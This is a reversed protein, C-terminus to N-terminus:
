LLVPHYASIQEFKAEQQMFEVLISVSSTKRCDKQYYEMKCPIAQWNGRNKSLLLCSSDKSKMKPLGIHLYSSHIHVSTITSLSYTYTPQVRNNRLSCRNNIFMLLGCSENMSFGSHYIAWVTCSSILSHTGSTVDASPTWWWVIFKRNGGWEVGDMAYWEWSTTFPPNAWFNHWIWYEM